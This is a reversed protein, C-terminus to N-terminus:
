ASCDADNVFALKWGNPTNVFYFVRQYIFENHFGPLYVAMMEADPYPLEVPRTELTEPNVVEDPLRYLTDYYLVFYGREGRFELECPSEGQSLKMVSYEGGSEPKFDFDTYDGFGFNRKRDYLYAITGPNYYRRIDIQPDIYQALTKHNNRLLKDFNKEWFCNDLFEDLFGLFEDPEGGVNFSEFVRKSITEFLQESEAPYEFYIDFYNDNAFITYQKYYSNEDKKGKIIYYNTFLQKEYVNEALKLDNEFATEVPPNDGDLAKFTRYVLMFSRGDATMFKQGDGSDTEGQPILIDPYEIGYDYRVNYYNSYNGDYREGDTERTDTEGRNLNSEQVTTQERNEAKTQKGGSCGALFLLLAFAIATKKMHVM